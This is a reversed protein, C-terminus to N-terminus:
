EVLKRIWSVNEKKIKAPTGALITNSKSFQSNVLSGAAVITNEPIRSGKLITSYMGIWVHNGIIIDKGYNIRKENSDLISHYDTNHIQIGLSFMCDSGIEICNGEYANIVTNHVKSANITTHNKIVVRSNGGGLLIHMGQLNCGEEITVSCNTGIFKIDCQKLVALRNIVLKNGKGVHHTGFYKNRWPFNNHRCFCNLFPFVISKVKKKLRSKKNM